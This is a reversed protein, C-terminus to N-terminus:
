PVPRVVPSHVKFHVPHFELIHFHVKVVLEGARLMDGVLFYVGDGEGACSGVDQSERHQLRHAEGRVGNKGLMKKERQCLSRAVKRSLIKGLM